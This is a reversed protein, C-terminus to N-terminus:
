ALAEELSLSFSYLNETNLSYEQIDQALVVRFKPKQFQLTVTNTTLAKELGPSIGLTISTGSVSARTISYAKYHNSKGPDSINIIDGVSPLGNSTSNYGPNSFASLETSGAPVSASLTKRFNNDSTFTNFATDRPGAYQPLEVFFPTRGGRRAMLFANIPEFEERTMPNYTIDIKWRHYAISRSILRGSNTRDSTTNFESSLKVSAFGPGLVQQASLAGTYESVEGTSTNFAYSPSPLTNQISM